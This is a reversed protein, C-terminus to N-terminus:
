EKVNFTVGKLAHVTKKNMIFFKSSHFEKKLDEIEIAYSM